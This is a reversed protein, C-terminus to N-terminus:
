IVTLAVEVNGRIANSYPCVSEHVKAVIKEAEAKALGELKVQLEIQLGFGGARRPGLMVKATVSSGTVIKGQQKATHQCATQFCAAYGAAFLQEPNTGGKGPGGMEKPLVLRLDLEGDSSCAQGGARGGTVTV